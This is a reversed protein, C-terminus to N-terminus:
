RAPVAGSAVLARATELRRLLRADGNGAAAQEWAQLALMLYVEGLNARAARHAPDNRLATELAQRALELQGTRVHLLAINNFPEPLEPYEQSLRTFASLAEANRRQEMMVVAQLFRPQPDRPAANAAVQAARAAGDLDGRAMLTHVDSVVDAVAPRALLLTAPLLVLLLVRSLNLLHPMPHGTSARHAPYGGPHGSYQFEIRDIGQRV